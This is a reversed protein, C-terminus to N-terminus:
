SIAYLLSGGGGYLACAGALIKWGVPGGAGLWAKDAMGIGCSIADV